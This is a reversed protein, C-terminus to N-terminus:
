RTFYGYFPKPLSRILDWTSIGIIKTRKWIRKWGNKTLVMWRNERQFCWWVKLIGYEITPDQQSPLEVMTDNSQDDSQHESQDSQSGNEVVLTNDDSLAPEPYRIAEDAKIQSRKAQLKRVKDELTEQKPLQSEIDDQKMYSKKLNEPGYIMYLLVLYCGYLSIIAFLGFVIVMPIVFIFNSIHKETEPPLNLKSLFQDYSTDNTITM